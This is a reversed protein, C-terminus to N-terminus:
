AAKLEPMQQIYHAISEELKRTWVENMYAAADPDGKRLKAILKEMAKGAREGATGSLVVQKKERKVTHESVLVSKDKALEVAKRQFKQDKVGKVTFRASNIAPQDIVLGMARFWSALPARAWQVLNDLAYQTDVINGAYAQRICHEGFRRLQEPANSKNIKEVQGIAFKTATNEYSM